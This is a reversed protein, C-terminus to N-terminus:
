PFAADWAGSEEQSYDWWQGNGAADWQALFTDIDNDTYTAAGSGDPNVSTSITFSDCIRSQTMDMTFVGSHEMCWSWNATCTEGCRSRLGGCTGDLDEWGHYYFAENRFLDWTYMTPTEDIILTMAYSDDTWTYTWPPGDSSPLDIPPEFVGEHNNIENVWTIWGNVMIAQPDQSDAMGAPVIIEAGPGAFVPPDNADPETSGGGEDSCSMAFLAMTVTAMM